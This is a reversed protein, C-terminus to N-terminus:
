GQDSRVNRKIRELQYMHHQVHNALFDITDFLDIRGVLPHKFIQLDYFAPDLDELFGEYHGHLKEWYASSSALDISEPDPLVQPAKWKDSSKLAKQLAGGIKKSEANAKEIGEPGSSTKKVLYGLTGKESIIIHQVIQLANWGDKDSPTRLEKDSWQQLERLIMGKANKMSIWHPQLTADM